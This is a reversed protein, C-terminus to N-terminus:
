NSFLLRWKKAKLAILDERESRRKYIGTVKSVKRLLDFETGAVADRYDVPRLWIAGLPDRLLEEQTTLWVLSLVPPSMRLLTEACNNRREVNRFVMLVRFAFRKYDAAKFGYRQALGGSQFYDRYGHAKLALTDQSETSRDIELFFFHSNSVDDTGSKQVRLLGDPKVTMPETRYQGAPKPKSATFQYLVPWTSFESVSLQETQNFAGTLAATLATKADLVDLEHRLTLESVQVRKELNHWTLRPYDKLMERSLLEVFGQKSLFLISPAYVRRPREGILKHAKLKQLRKKTAESKGSFYLACIHAQTMVRSEFLGRLLLLDRAQLELAVPKTKVNANTGQSTRSATNTAPKSPPM